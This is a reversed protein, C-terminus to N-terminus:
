KKAEVIRKAANKVFFDKDALYKKALKKGKPDEKGVFRMAAGRAMGKNADNALLIKAIAISKKKQAAPTDKHRFIYKVAFAVDSSKVTGGKAKKEAIALLADFEGKCRANPAQGALRMAADAVKDVKDTEAVERWLTCVEAHKGSPTGIWFAEVASSRVDDSKETKAMGKILEYLKVVARNRFLVSRVLAARFGEVEHDKALTSVKDVLKTGELDIEAIARALKVAVLKDQEKEAAAVVREALKADSEYTKGSQKLTRAALWRLKADADEILNVMTTDARGLKVLDSKRFAKFAECRTSFGFHKWECGLVKKVEAIVAPDNTAAALGKTEKAPAAAAPKDDGAPKKKDVCAALGLALTISCVLLSRTM